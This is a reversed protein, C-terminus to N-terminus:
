KNRRRAKIVIRQQFAAQSEEGFCIHSPLQLRSTSSAAKNSVKEHKDGQSSFSACQTQDYAVISSKSYNHASILHNFRDRPNDFLMQCGKHLCEYKLESRALRLKYLNDHSELLHMELMKETGFKRKCSSCENEHYM